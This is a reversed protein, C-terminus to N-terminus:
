NRCTTLRRTPRFAQSVPAKAMRRPAHLITLKTTAAPYESWTFTVGYSRIAGSGSSCASEGPEIMGLRKQLRTSWGHRLHSTKRSGRSTTPLRVPRAEPLCYPQCCQPRTPQLRKRGCAARACAAPVAGLHEAAGCHNSLRQVLDRVRAFVRWRVLPTADFAPAPLGIPGAPYRASRLISVIQRVKHPNEPRRILSWYLFCSLHKLSLVSFHYFNDYDENHAFLTRRFGGEKPPPSMGAGEWGPAQAPGSSTQECGM